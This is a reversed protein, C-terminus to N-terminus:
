AGAEVRVGALRREADWTFPKRGGNAEVAAPRADVGLALHLRPQGAAQVRLVGDTGAAFAVFAKALSHFWVRGDRRLYSGGALFCREIAGDVRTVAVLDADTEWGDIVQNSNRHMRRGDARLNWYVDTERGDQRVRAGLWEGGSIGEVQADGLLIATLFKAERAPEPAAFALHTVSEDPRHDALGQERSRELAAPFLPRVVVEVDGDVIRVDRGPAAEGMAEGAHHLLWSIRGPEHARVDDLVLLVDGVWLFHRHNRSFHRATPGTADALVYRLDGSEVLHHLRGPHKSGRYVAEEPEGQGDFLVVSHARAQCYYGHYEPRDYSCNGSDILMARGRHMLIFSGADAHAHNWAIGCKIALLTADDAWSTRLVAWGIDPYLMCRGLADPRRPASAGARALLAIPREAPRARELYWRLEPQEFGNLLLLTVVRAASGHLNSDGFNVTLLGSRTPYATHLFFGGARELLPIGPPAGLTNAYGLRFLLYEALGYDAYNVSEYFAGGADFNPSKNQLVNGRYDFWLDLAEEAARVWGEARPDDGLVALAALGAQAVCVSWWNHGMSDLAHVRREPLVWDELTPLIGLRVVANVVAAREDASLADHIADYGTAFGFCFRATNLESHWPPDNRLLGRGYWKAYGGYHLLAARLKEAYRADGTVQYAMGLVLGMDAMQGSPRGYNGHQTDPGDAETESVFPRDLLAEAHSVIEGWLADGQVEARLRAVRDRDYLLHPHAPVPPASGRDTHM